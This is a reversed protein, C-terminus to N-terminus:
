EVILASLPGGESIYPALDDWPILVTQHGAAYPGVEYVDFNIRLGEPLLNWHERAELVGEALGPTFGLDRALLDPEVVPLIVALPDVDPVFLDALILFRGQELDFNLSQSSPFPHASIAIYTNFMLYVSVLGHENYTLAYELALFSKPPIDSAENPEPIESLFASVADNVRRDIEANFIEAIAPDGELTPWRAEITYPPQDSEEIVSQEVLDWAITSDGPSAEQRSTDDEVNPEDPLVGPQDFPTPPQVSCSALVGLLVSLGILRKFILSCRWNPEQQNNIM